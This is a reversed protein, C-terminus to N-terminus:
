IRHVVNESIRGGFTKETGWNVIKSTFITLLYINFELSTSSLSPIIPVKSLSYMKEDATTLDVRFIERIKERFDSRCRSGRDNRM